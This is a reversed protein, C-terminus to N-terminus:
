ALLALQRVHQLPHPLLLVGELLLVRCQLLSGIGGGTLILPEPVLNRHELVFEHYAACLYTTDTWVNM